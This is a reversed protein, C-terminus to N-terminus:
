QMYKMAKLNTQLLPLLVTQSLGEDTEVHYLSTWSSLKRLKTHLLKVPRCLSKSCSQPWNITRYISSSLFSRIEVSFHTARCKWKMDHVKLTEIHCQQIETTYHSQTTNINGDVYNESFKRTSIRNNTDFITVMSVILVKASANSFTACSKLKLIFLFTLHVQVLALVINTADLRLFNAFVFLLETYHFLHRCTRIICNPQRCQPSQWFNCQSLSSLHFPTLTCVKFQLM